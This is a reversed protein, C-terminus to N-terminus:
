FIPTNERAFGSALGPECGCLEALDGPWWNCHQKTEQLELQKWDLSLWHGILATVGGIM